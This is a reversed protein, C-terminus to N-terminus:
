IDDENPEEARLAAEALRQRDSDLVLGGEETWTGRLDPWRPRSWEDAAIQDYFDPGYSRGYPDSVVAATRPDPAPIAPAPPPSSDVPRTASRYCPCGPGQPPQQYGCKSCRIDKAKRAEEEAIGEPSRRYAERALRTVEQAKFAAEQATRAAQRRTEAELLAKKAKARDLHYQQEWRQATARSRVHALKAAEPRSKGESIAHLFRTRSKIPM